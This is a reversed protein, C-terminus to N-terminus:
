PDIQSTAVSIFFDLTLKNVAEVYLIGTPQFYASGVILSHPEM